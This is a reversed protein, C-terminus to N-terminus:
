SSPMPPPAKKPVPGPPVRSPMPAWPPAPKSPPPERSPPRPVKKNPIRRKRDQKKAKMANVYAQHIMMVGHDAKDPSKPNRPEVGNRCDACPCGESESSVAQEVSEKDFPVLKYGKKVYAEQLLEDALGEPVELGPPQRFAPGRHDSRLYSVRWKRANDEAIQEDKTKNRPRTAEIDISDDTGISETDEERNQEVFSWKVETAESEGGSGSSSNSSAMNFQEPQRPEEPNDEETEENGDERLVIGRLVSKACSTADEHDKEVSERFMHSYQEYEEHSYWRGLQMSRSKLQKKAIAFEELTEANTERILAALKSKYIELTKKEVLYTWTQIPEPQQLEEESLSPSLPGPPSYDSGHKIDFDKGPEM